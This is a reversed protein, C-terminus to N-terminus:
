TTQMMGNARPLQPDSVLMAYSTDFSSGHFAGLTAQILIFVLLLWFLMNPTALLLALLLSLIGSGLNMAIMTRKRDHRDAWAGAIPAAFVTPLAFALSVLSLAM